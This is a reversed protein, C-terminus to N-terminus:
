REGVPKLLVPGLSRVQVIDNWNASVIESAEGFSAAVVFSKVTATASRADEPLWEVEFVRGETANIADMFKTM